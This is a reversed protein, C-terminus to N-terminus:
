PLNRTSTAVAGGIEGHLRHAEHAGRRRGLRQRQRPALRVAGLHDNEAGADGAQRRGIFEALGAIVAGHQLRAVADAAAVQADPAAGPEVHGVARALEAFEIRVQVEIGARRPM